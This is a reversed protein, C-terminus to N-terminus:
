AFKLSISRWQVYYSENGAEGDWSFCMRGTEKTFRESEWNHLFPDYWRHRVSWVERDSVGIPMGDYWFDGDDIVAATASDLSTVVAVVESHGHYRERLVVYVGHETLSQITDQNAMTAICGKAKKGPMKLGHRRLYAVQNQYKYDANDRQTTSLIIETGCQPCKLGYHGSGKPAGCFGQNMAMEALQRYRASRFKATLSVM